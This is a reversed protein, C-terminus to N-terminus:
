KNKKTQDFIHEIYTNLTKQQMINNYKLLDKKIKKDQICKNCKSRLSYKLVLIPLEKKNVNITLSMGHICSNGYEVIHEGSDYDVYDKIPVIINKQEHYFKKFTAGKLFINKKM